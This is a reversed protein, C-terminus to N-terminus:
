GTAVAVEYISIYSGTSVINVDNSGTVIVTVNATTGIPLASALTLIPLEAFSASPISITFPIALPAADVLIQVSVDQASLGVNHLGIVASMLVTGTAQPTIPINTGPTAGSEILLWSITTGGPDADVDSGPGAASNRAFPGASAAFRPSDPYAHCTRSRGRGSIFEGM